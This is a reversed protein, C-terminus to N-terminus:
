GYTYIEMQQRTNTEEALTKNTNKKEKQSHMDTNQKSESMYSMHLVVARKQYLLLQGATHNRRVDGILVAWTYVKYRVVRVSAQAYKCAYLGCVSVQWRVCACSHMFCACVVACGASDCARKSACKHNVLQTKRKGKLVQRGRQLSHEKKRKEAHSELALANSTRAHM